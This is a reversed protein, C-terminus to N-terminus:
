DISAHDHPQPLYAGCEPCTMATLGRIDYGCKCRPTPDLLRLLPRYTSFGILGGIGLGAGISIILTGDDDLGPVKSLAAYAIWTPVLIIALSWAAMGGICMATDVIFGADRSRRSM